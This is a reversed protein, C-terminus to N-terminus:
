VEKVARLKNKEQKINEQIIDTKFPMSQNQRSEGCCHILKNYKEMKRNRKNKVKSREVKKSYLM